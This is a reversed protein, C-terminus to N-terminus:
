AARASALEYRGEWNMGVETPSTMRGKYTGHAKIGAFTGTGATAQWTGELTTEGGKTTVKGEFSGNELDGNAHVNVYYGRHTGSGEVSDLVGWYTLAANNWNEDNSRQTGRTEAIHLQHGPTDSLSVATQSVATGTFSGSMEPM